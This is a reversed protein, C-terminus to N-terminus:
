DCTLSPPCAAAANPASTKEVLALLSNASREVNDVYRKQRANLDGCQPEQLLTLFGSIAGLPNMCDHRFRRLFEQHQAELEQIRASLRNVEELAAALRQSLQENEQTTSPSM